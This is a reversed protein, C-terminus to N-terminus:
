NYIKIYNSVMAKIGFEAEIKNTAAKAFDLRLAKDEILTKLKSEFENNGCIYGDANNAIIEKSGGQLDNTIVPVGNAMLEMIANSIGETYTCLLGISCDKILQNVDERFGLFKIKPHRDDIYPNTLTKFEPHIKGIAIFTIDQRLKTFHQAIEIFLSYNKNKSVNALMVVKLPTTIGISQLKNIKNKSIRKPDFGNYVVIGKAKPVKYNDLGVQSNSVIVDARKFILQHGMIANIKSFGFTDGIFGAIFKFKFLPKLISAYFSTKISWAHVVEPKIKKLLLYYQRILVLNSFGNLRHITIPLQNVEPYDNNTKTTVLHIKFMDHKILGKLLEVLRREKGGGTFEEILFVIKM